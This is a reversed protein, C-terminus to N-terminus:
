SVQLTIYGPDDITDLIEFQPTAPFLKRARPHSPTCTGVMPPEPRSNIGTVHVAWQGRRCRLAGLCWSFPANSKVSKTSSQHFLLFLVEDFLLSRFQWAFRLGYLVFLLCISNSLHPCRAVLIDDLVITQIWKHICLVGFMTWHQTSVWQKWYVANVNLIGNQIQRPCGVGETGTLGVLLGLPMWCALWLTDGWDWWSPPVDVGLALSLTMMKITQYHNWVWSM